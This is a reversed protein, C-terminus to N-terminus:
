AQLYQLLPAGRDVRVGHRRLRLIGVLGHRPRLQELHRQQRAGVDRRLLLVPAEGDLLEAPQQQLFAAAPPPPPM